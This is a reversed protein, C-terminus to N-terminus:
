NLKRQRLKEKFEEISNSKVADEFVSNLTNEDEIREIRSMYSIDSFKIGLLKKLGQLLGDKRGEKRGEELGTERGERIINDITKGLNSVM